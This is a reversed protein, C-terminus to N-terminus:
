FDGGISLAPGSGPRADGVIRHRWDLTLRVGRDAIPLVLAATPGIDIRSAGRQAGAWSGLGLHLRAVSTTVRAAADVFLGRGLVGGAQGYGDVRFRPGFVARDLGATVFAAPRADGGDLPLRQEAIVHIPAATPQWGIGFAAERGRGRLPASIRAALAIRARDAIIYTARAGVQSAGLQGTALTDSRGDRAIGWIGLALRDPSHTPPPLHPSAIIPAAPRVEGESVVASWEVPTRLPAEVPIAIADIKTVSSPVVARLSRDLARRTPRPARIVRDLATFRLPLFSTMEASPRTREALIPTPSPGEPWWAVLRITVWVLLVAGLFRLPRGTM